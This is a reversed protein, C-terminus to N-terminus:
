GGFIGSFLGELLGGGSLEPVEIGQSRLIDALMQEQASPQNGLLADMLGQIQQQQLNSAVTQGQLLGELGSQKLATALQVGQRNATNSIDAIPTGVQLAQLLRTEPAVSEDLLGKGLTFNERRETLAQNRAGFANQGRQEEIAKFLALQEPTGGFQATRVGSRGQNFLREELSLQERERGPAQMAELDDFINQSTSLLDDNILADLMGFGGTRLRESIEQQEPSLTASFGGEPTTSVGGTNTTITFPKFRAGSVAEDAFQQSVDFAREGIDIADQIGEAGAAYNAGLGLIDLLTSPM